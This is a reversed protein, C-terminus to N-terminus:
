DELVGEEPETNPHYTKPTWDYRGVNPTQFGLSQVAAAVTIAPKRPRKGNLLDFDKYTRDNSESLNKWTKWNETLLIKKETFGNPDKSNGGM